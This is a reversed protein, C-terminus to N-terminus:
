DEDEEYNGHAKGWLYGMVGTFAPFGVFVWASELFHLM